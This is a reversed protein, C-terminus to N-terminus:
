PTARQRVPVLKRAVVDGDENRAVVSSVRHGPPVEVIFLGADIPPTVWALATSTRRGDDQVVDLSTADRASVAGFVLTPSQQSAQTVVFGLPDRPKASTCTGAIRSLTYCFGGEATPAVWLTRTDNYLEKSLVSRADQANVGPAMGPPAGRNLEAFHLKAEEPAPDSSWFDIAGLAVALAPATVLAAMSIATSALVLKRRRIRRAARSRADTWDATDPGAGLAELRHRLYHDSM